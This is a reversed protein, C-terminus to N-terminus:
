RAVWDEPSWGGGKLQTLLHDTKPDAPNMVWLDTDQGTRRTSAYALSEGGSSWPGLLNRSKGDTLLTSNGTAIDYRFLQYWEGGGVDKQFVLYDGDQPHYPGV